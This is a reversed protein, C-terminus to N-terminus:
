APNPPGYRGVELTGRLCGNAEKTLDFSNPVGPSVLLIRGENVRFTFHTSNAELPGATPQAATVKVDGLNKRGSASATARATAAGCAFLAFATRPIFRM